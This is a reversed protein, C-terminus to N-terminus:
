SQCHNSQNQTDYVSLPIFRQFTTTPTLEVYSMKLLWDDVVMYLVAM